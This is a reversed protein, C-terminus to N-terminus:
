WQPSGGLRLFERQVIAEWQERLDKVGYKAEFRWGRRTWQWGSWCSRARWASAGCTKRTVGPTISGLEPLTLETGARRRGGPRGGLNGSVGKV